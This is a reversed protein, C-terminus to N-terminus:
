NKNKIMVYCKDNNTTQQQKNNTTTIIIKRYGFVFDLNKKKKYLAVPIKVITITVTPIM